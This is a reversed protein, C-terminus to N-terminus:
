CRCAKWSALYTTMYAHEFDLSYDKLYECKRPDLVSLIVRYLGTDECSSDGWELASSTIEHIHLNMCCICSWSTVILVPHLPLHRQERGCINVSTIITYISNSHKLKLRLIRLPIEYCTCWLRITCHYRFYSCVEHSFSDLSREATSSSDNAVLAWFVEGFQVASCLSYICNLCQGCKDNCGVRRTNYRWKSKSLWRFDDIPALSSIHM